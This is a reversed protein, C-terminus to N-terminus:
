LPPISVINTNNLAWILDRGMPRLMILPASFAYSFMLLQHSGKTIREEIAEKLTLAQRWDPAIQLLFFTVIDFLIISHQAPSLSYTPIPIFIKIRM